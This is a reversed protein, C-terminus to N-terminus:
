WYETIKDKKKKKPGWVGIGSNAWNHPCKSPGYQSYIAEIKEINATSPAAITYQTNIDFKKYM